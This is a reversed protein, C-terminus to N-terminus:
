SLGSVNAKKIIDLTFAGFENHLKEEKVIESVGLIIQRLCQPDGAKSLISKKIYNKAIDPHKKAMESFLLCKAQAIISSYNILENHKPWPKNSMEELEILFEKDLKFGDPNLKKQLM